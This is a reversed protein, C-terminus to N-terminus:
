PDSGTTYICSSYQGVVVWIARGPQYGDEPTTSANSACMIQSGGLHLYLQQTMKGRSEQSWHISTKALKNNQVHSDIRRLPQHVDGKDKVQLTDGSTKIVKILV